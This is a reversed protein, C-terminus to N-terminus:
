TQLAPKALYSEGHPPSHPVRLLRDVFRRLNGIMPFHAPQESGPAVSISGREVSQSGDDIVFEPAERSAVHSALARAVAQLGRGQHVLGVHSQDVVLAHLPLIPGM